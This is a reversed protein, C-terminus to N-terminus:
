EVEQPSVEAQEYFQERLAMPEEVLQSFAKEVLTPELKSSLLELEFILLM